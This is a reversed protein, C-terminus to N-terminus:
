RACTPTADLNEIKVDLEANVYGLFHGFATEHGGGLVITFVDQALLDGVVDGLARQDRALDGTPVLDGLDRTHQLVEEM